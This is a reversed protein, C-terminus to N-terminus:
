HKRPARDEKVTAAWLISPHQRIKEALLSNETILQPNIVGETRVKQIFQEERSKLPLLLGLKAKLEALTEQAWKELISKRGLQHSQRLVPLLQDNIDKLDYGISDPHMKELPIESMSLYAIWIPRLKELSLPSKTLLYHSDFLDRSTRRAFLATLKGASLEHIDLVPIKFKQEVIFNPSKWEVDLLPQRYMYNLDIELNGKQGLVSDYRWIMKGGAYSTPNRDPTFGKQTLILQIAENLVSREEIMIARDVSGIYNLDIDVSLRPLKDFHFLNLATGGKLVLRDRLYPISAFADLVELLKIVKELIEPKYANDRAQKILSAKSIM